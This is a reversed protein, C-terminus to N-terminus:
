RGGEIPHNEIAVRVADAAAEGWFKAQEATQETVGDVSWDQVDAAVTEGIGNIVEAIDVYIRM